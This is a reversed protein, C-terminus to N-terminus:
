RAAFSRIGSSEDSFIKLTKAARLVPGISPRPNLLKIEGGRNKVQAATAVLQGIAGSDISVVGSLNLLIQNQGKDLFDDVADQVTAYREFVLRGKLDLITVGSIERIAQVLEPPSSAEPSNRKEYALLGTTSGLTLGYQEELKLLEEASMKKIPLESM